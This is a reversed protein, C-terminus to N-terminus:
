PKRELIENTTPHLISCKAHLEEVNSRAKGNVGRKVLERCLKILREKIKGAGPESNNQLPSLVEIITCVLEGGGSDIVIGFGEPTQSSIMLELIHISGM